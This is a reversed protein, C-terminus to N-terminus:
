LKYFLFDNSKVEFFYDIPRKNYNDHTRICWMYQCLTYEYQNLAYSGFREGVLFVVTPQHSWCLVNEMGNNKNFCYFM